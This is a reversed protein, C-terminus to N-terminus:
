FLLPRMEMKTAFIQPGGLRCEMVNFSVSLDESAKTVHAPATQPVSGKGPVRSRPALRVHKYYQPISIAETFVLSCSESPAQLFDCLQHFVSSPIVKLSKVVWDWNVRSMAGLLLFPKPLFKLVKTVM